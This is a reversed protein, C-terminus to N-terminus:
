STQYLEPKTEKKTKNKKIFPTYNHMKIVHVYKQTRGPLENFVSQHVLLVALLSSRQIPDLSSITDVKEQLVQCSTVTKALEVPTPLFFHRSTVDHDPQTVDRVKEQLFSDLHFPMM